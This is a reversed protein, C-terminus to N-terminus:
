GIKFDVQELILGKKWTRLQIQFSKRRIIEDIVITFILKKTSTSFTGLISNLLM